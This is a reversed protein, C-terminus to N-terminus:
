RARLREGLPAGDLSTGILDLYQVTPLLAGESTKVFIRRLIGPRGAIAVRARLPRDLVCGKGWTNLHINVRTRM